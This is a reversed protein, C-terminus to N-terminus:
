IDIATAPATTPAAAPKKNESETMQKEIGPPIKYAGAAADIVGAIDLLAMDHWRRGVLQVAIPMGEKSYGAPLTVAPHGTANFPTTYACNAMWYDLTHGDVNVPKHYINYGFLTADPDHHKPAPGMTAPCIFVDWQSLFKEMAIILRDRRARIEIFKDYTAPYVAQLLPSTARHFGGGAWMVFRKAAPHNINLQLDVMQGWTKWIEEFDVSEPQCKEITCGSAALKDMFQQMTRRTDKSIPIGGFEDTWAIRLGRCAPAPGFNMKTAPVLPDHVDPGAIVQMCLKLDAISRALPGISVMTRITRNEMAKVGPFIGYGSVVNETPKIAYIGCYAAPIRISGALDSGLTLPSMGAAVAAAGGGTSGGPTHNLNWPNSTKGYIPNNTQVDMAMVPMNTIGLIIAGATKLRQVVTADFDTIQDSLPPFANTIRTNKVAFHDKISVPVGHLPGWVRGDALAADAQRARELAAEENLVVIANIDPNYKHIHNLHATVVAMSTRRGDRIDAALESASLFVLPRDTAPAQKKDADSRCGASLLVVLCLLCSVVTSLWPGSFKDCGSLARRLLPSSM